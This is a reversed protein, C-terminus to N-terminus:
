EADGLAMGMISRTRYKSIVGCASSVHCGLSLHTNQFIDENDRNLTVYNRGRRLM